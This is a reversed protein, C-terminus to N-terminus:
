AKNKLEFVSVEEDNIKRNEVFKFGLKKLLNISSANNLTTTAYLQNIKLHNIAFQRVGIASELALGKKSFNPFFAYGIDPSDFYDRQLLGCLGISTNTAKEVVLWLGFGNKQYSALPGKVIYNKADEVTKINRDGIYKLWGETNLLEFIFSADDLILEKIILRKTELIM